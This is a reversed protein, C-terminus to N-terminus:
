RWRTPQHYKRDGDGETTDSTGDDSQKDGIKVFVHNDQQYDHHSQSIDKAIRREQMIVLLFPYFNSCISYCSDDVTNVYIFAYM